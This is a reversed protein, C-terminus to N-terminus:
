IAVVDIEALACELIKQFRPEALSRGMATMGGLIGAIVCGSVIGTAFGYSQGIVLAVVVVGLAGVARNLPSLELHGTVRSAGDAAASVGGRLIFNPSRHMAQISMTFDAARVQTASGLVGLKRLDAPMKSERWDKGFAEIRRLADSAPIRITLEIMGSLVGIQAAM